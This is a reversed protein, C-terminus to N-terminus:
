LKLGLWPKHLWTTRRDTQRDTQGDTQRAIVRSRTSRNDQFKACLRIEDIWSGLEFILWIPRTTRRHHPNLTGGGTEILSMKSIKSNERIFVTSM